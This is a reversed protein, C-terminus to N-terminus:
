KFPDRSLVHGEPLKSATWWQQISPDLNFHESSVRSLQVAMLNSLVSPKLRARWDTKGKEDGFVRERIRSGTSTLGAMNLFMNHKDEYDLVQKWLDLFSVTSDSSRFKTVLNKVYGLENVCEDPDCGYTERPQSVHKALLSIDRAGYGRLAECDTPWFM